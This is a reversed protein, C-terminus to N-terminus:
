KYFDVFEKITKMKMADSLDPASGLAAELMAILGFLNLSKSQLDEELRTDLSLQSVDKGYNDAFIKFVKEQMTLNRRKKISPRLMM